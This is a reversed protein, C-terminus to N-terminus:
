DQHSTFIERFRPALSTFAELVNPDFHHPMKRGDGETIIRVVENHEFAPKYPRESMLADYQDCIIVIRGEIPIDEGKLGAPYGTGNWREHHNLAISAAMRFIQQSSDVLMKEGITTHTKIVDFEEATLSGPKLLISDSIGIKGIDHLQSAYEIMETFDSPLGLRDSIKAAYLGMRSIHAGTETDRFEAISTLRWIIEKNLSDLEETRKKVTEELMSTYNKELEKLRIMHVAKQITNLLYEQTYPKTIFDFAGKKIAGIAVDLDAYATMLIVPLEPYKSGLIELLEIGTLEPMKIDTLVIDFHLLELEELAKNGSGCSTVSYGSAELILSLSELVYPDDDVILVKKLESHPNRFATNEVESSNFTSKRRM